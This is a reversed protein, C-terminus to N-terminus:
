LRINMGVHLSLYTNALPVQLIFRQEKSISMRTVSDVIWGSRTQGIPPGGLVPIEAIVVVVGLGAQQEAQNAGFLLREEKGIGGASDASRRAFNLNAM